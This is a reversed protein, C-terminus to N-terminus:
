HISCKLLKADEEDHTVLIFARGKLNEDIYKIAKEKTKNDLGAFPEDMIVIQSDATIARQIEACRSMGGSLDKAILKGDVLNGIPKKNTTVLINQDISLDPILSSEQFVSSVTRPEYSELFLEGSDAKELDMIINLLTTKGSGTPGTLALREGSNVKYRVNELVKKDFSKNIDGVILSFEKDIKFTKNDTQLKISKKQGRNTLVKILKLIVIECLWGLLIVIFMWLLLQASDLYLKSTYVREGITLGVAGIM